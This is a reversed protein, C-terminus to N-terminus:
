NESARGRVYEGPLAIAIGEIKKGLYSGFHRGDGTLLHTPRAEIAALLIPVDKEPLSIGRPLGRQAAEFLHVVGSLKTLRTRQDEDALNIRAEELAYRSSCLVVSKLKWLQLLGADPRYAASFLVNADLFLRDM